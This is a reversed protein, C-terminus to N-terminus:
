FPTEKATIFIEDQVIVVNQKIKENESQIESAFIQCNDSDSLSGGVVEDMWSESSETIPLFKVEANENNKDEEIQLEPLHTGSIIEEDDSESFGGEGGDDMWANSADAMPLGLGSKVPITEEKDGKCSSSAHPAKKNEEESYPFIEGDGDQVRANSSEAMASSKVEVNENENEEEMQM